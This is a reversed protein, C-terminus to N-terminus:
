NQIQIVWNNSGNLGVYTCSTKNFSCWAKKGITKYHACCNWKNQKALLFAKRLNLTLSCLYHKCKQGACVCDCICSAALGLVSLYSQILALFYSDSKKVEINFYIRIVLKWALILLSFCPLFNKHFPRRQLREEQGDYRAVLADAWM